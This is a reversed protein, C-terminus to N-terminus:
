ICNASPTENKKRKLLFHENVKPNYVWLYQCERRYNLKKTFPHKTKKLIKDIDRSLTVHDQTPERKIKHFVNTKFYEGLHMRAICLSLYLPYRSEVM